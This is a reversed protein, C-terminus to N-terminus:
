NTEREHKVSGFQRLFLKVGAMGPTTHHTWVVLLTVTARIHQREFYFEEGFVWLCIM